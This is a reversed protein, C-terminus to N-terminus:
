ETIEELTGFMPLEIYDPDIPDRSNLANLIRIATDMATKRQIKVRVLAPWQSKGDVIVEGAGQKFEFDKFGPLM